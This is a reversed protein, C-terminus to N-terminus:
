ELLWLSHSITSTGRDTQGVLSGVNRLYHKVQRCGVHNIAQTGDEYLRSHIIVILTYGDGQNFKHNLIMLVGMEWKFNSFYFAVHKSFGLSVYWM